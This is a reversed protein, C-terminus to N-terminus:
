GPDAPFDARRIGRHKQPLIGSPLFDRAKVYSSISLAPTTTVGPLAKVGVAFSIDSDRKYLIFFPEHFSDAANFFAAHMHRLFRSEKLPAKQMHHRVLRSDIFIIHFTECLHIFIKRTGQFHPLRGRIFATHYSYLIIIMILSCVRNRSRDLLPM